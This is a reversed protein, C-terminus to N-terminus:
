KKNGTRQKLDEVKKQSEMMQDYRLQWKSKTKPKKRTAEMKALIKDHDIIYNQIVFQLLLTIANSVTYYWTLASPLRNFIFLLIFPFFYPMYKMVPNGQDPTMSMNYISILFSTTVATLTFLSIHDGFGFPIAFPLKFFVDYSSLDKAWLFSQGRLAIESNFFSYLAFFIPVQLLAPICGGLPNVGAERFLKMQEMAFGQQDDGFKKKVIDLEPRLVKMKSSSLYSTYTLPSTVLRIFITLLAIVWGYNKIFGAFFNFVPMIIYKNIYKVFAFMGSGLDVISEMKLNYKKLVDYENPGYYLGLAVNASAAAPVSLKMNATAKGVTNSNDEPVTMSIDGGTFNNKAIITSNFFQQKVAVWNVPSEFTESAGTAANKFDYDNDEVYCLRAQTREYKIDSQQKAAQVQWNINMSNGTLLRNAGNLSVNWDIMYDNPKLRFEHTISQGDNSTLNFTVVQAGDNAKTVVGPSFFLSATSASQTPSTNITYGINDFASANMKVNTSDFSKYNKLEVTKPQAGKNSFTIKVLENEVTTLQESGSGATQFNGAAAVNSASDRRVSDLAATKPDVVPASLAKVRAISDEVHKKEALAAQQQRSTFWFYGIFLIGILVFGIVTNNDTKM